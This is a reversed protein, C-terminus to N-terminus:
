QMSPKSLHVMASRELRLIAQAPEGPTEQSVDVFEENGKNEVRKVLQRAANYFLVHHGDFVAFVIADEATPETPKHIEKSRHTEKAM